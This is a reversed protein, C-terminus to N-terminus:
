SARQVRYSMGSLVELSRLSDGQAGRQDGGQLRTTFFSKLLQQSSAGRTIPPPAVVPEEGWSGDVARSSVNFEVPRGGCARCCSSDPRRFNRRPFVSVSRANKVGRKEPSDCSQDPVQPMGHHSWPKREHQFIFRIERKKIELKQYIHSHKKPKQYFPFCIHFWTLFTRSNWVPLKPPTYSSLCSPHVNNPFGSDM